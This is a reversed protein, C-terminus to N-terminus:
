LKDSHAIQGTNARSCGAIVGLTKGADGARLNPRGGQFAATTFGVESICSDILSFFSSLSAWIFLASSIRVVIQGWVLRLGSCHRSSNSRFPFVCCLPTLRLRYQSCYIYLLIIEVFLQLTEGVGLKTFWLAIQFQNCSRPPSLSLKM